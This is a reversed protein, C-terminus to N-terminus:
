CWFRDPDRRTDVTEHELTVLTAWHSHAGRELILHRPTWPVVGYAKTSLGIGTSIGSWLCALLETCTGVSTDLTGFYRGWQAALPRDGDVNLSDTPVTRLYSTGPQRDV